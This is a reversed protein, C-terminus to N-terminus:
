RNSIYENYSNYIKLENNKLEFIRNCKKLSSLRHAVMIITIEKDLDELSTGILQETRDDLASTAEDFVLLKKFRYIARAIAIRQRQGGSLMIGNQGVKSHYKNPLERIFEDAEALKAAKIIEEETADTKGYRINEIITDDFLMVEQSVVSMSNRVSSITLDRLDHNDLKISGSAPDYFRLIMSMITSKGGGSHGVLAVTKGADIKLNLGNLAIKDQVYNFNVDKFEINGKVKELDKANKSDIIKPKEDLLKYIRTASSLGLQVGSNMSSVSKLPRYAMMMAGFFSFFAGPTTNGEIVQHGGYWIVAAVGFGAMSEVLPSAVLSLRSIKKGIAIINNVIKQMRKIEFDECNYSKVLKSYQLTDNMHGVFNGAMEQDKGSLNRLRKGLRYIPYGALPFGIFAIISLEFSQYFMVGVLGALTFLQKVFGNIITSIMGVIRGTENLVSAMMTGSSKSHLKSIDSKIFHSYIRMKLAASIKITLYNMTLLQFYTAAGKVFTVILVVAPIWVLANAKKEVFVADLAPKILYAHYSTTGAVVLMLAVSILFTRWYPFIYDKSIRTILYKTNSYDISM